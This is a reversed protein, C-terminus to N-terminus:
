DASASPKAEAEALQKIAAQLQNKREQLKQAIDRMREEEQYIQLLALKLDTLSLPRPQNTDTM